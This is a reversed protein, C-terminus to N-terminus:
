EEPEIPATKPLVGYDKANIKKAELEINIQFNEEITKKARDHTIDPNHEVIYDAPTAMNNKFKWDWLKTEDDINLPIKPEQFDVTLLRSDLKTDIVEEKPYDAFGAGAPKPNSAFQICKAFAREFKVYRKIRTQRTESLVNQKLKISYGSQADKTIQFTGDPLGHTKAFINLKLNLVNITQEMNVTYDLVGMNGNLGADLIKTWGLKQNRPVASGTGASTKWTQKFTSFKLQGNLYTLWLCVEMAAEFMTEDIDERWFSEDRIEDHFDFFPYFMRMGNRSENLKKFPNEKRSGVIVNGIEDFDVYEMADAYHWIIKTASKGNWTPTQAQSTSWIIGVAIRPDTESQIIDCMNRTLPFLSHGYNELYQYRLIVDHCNTVLKDVKDLTEDADCQELIQSYIASADKDYTSLDGKEDKKPENYNWRREAGYRYVTSIEDVVYKLVNVSLSALAKLQKQEESDEFISEIKAYVEEKLSGNYITRRKEIEKKAANSINKKARILAQKVLDPGVPEFLM